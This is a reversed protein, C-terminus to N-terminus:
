SDGDASGNDNRLKVVALLLCKEEGGELGFAEGICDLDVVAKRGGGLTLPIEAVRVNGRAGAAGQQILLDAARRRRPTAILQQGDIAGGRASFKWKEARVVRISGPPAVDDGLLIQVRDREIDQLVDRQRILGIIILAPVVESRAAHLARVIAPAGLDIM